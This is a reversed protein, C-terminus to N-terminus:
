EGEVRVERILRRLDDVARVFGLEIAREVDVIVLASDEMLRQVYSPAHAYYDAIKAYQFRIHRRAALTLFWREEETLREEREIAEILADYRTTDVMERMEPRKGRPEYIPLRTEMTYASGELAGLHYVGEMENVLRVVDEDLAEDRVAKLLSALAGKDYDAMYTVYDFTALAQRAEAESLDVVIYPVMTEEGRSLAQWVREHGDLLYGNSLEIVPAIWGLTRLSAEVARRQRAPHRRANEPNALFERAPKEGYRVIKNVFAEKSVM